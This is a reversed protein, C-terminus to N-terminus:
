SGQICVTGGAEIDGDVAGCNVDCGATVDGSIDCCTVSGNSNVDGDVDAATVQGQANIDGCVDAATVSGSANIDGDVDAATVSGSANIDGNVDAATVSGRANVDGDVNCCTVAGGANVDGNVDQCTVCVASTLNQVPGEYTFVLEKADASGWALLEHGRFLPVYLAQDDKWPLAGPAKAPAPRDFLEDMSIGFIDALPPLLTIDPCCQDAEWKSVAQNSVGLKQALAEQTIGLGKRCSAIVTAMSM